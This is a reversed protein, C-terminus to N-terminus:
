YKYTFKQNNGFEVSVDLSAGVIKAVVDSTNRCELETYLMRGTAKEIRAVVYSDHYTPAFTDLKAIAKFKVTENDVIEKTLMNFAQGHRTNPVQAQTPLASLKEDKFKMTIEYYSGKDVCTASKLSSAEVKGGYNQKYVPIGTNASSQANDQNFNAPDTSFMPVIQKILGNIFKSSSTINGIINTIVLDYKPSEKKVKNAAANYYAAIEAPTEPKKDAPATTAATTGNDATTDSLDAATTDTESLGESVDESPLEEAFYIGDEKFEVTKGKEAYYKSIGEKQDETLSKYDGDWDSLGAAALAIRIMEANLPHPANSEENTTQEDTRAASTSTTNDAKKGCAALSFVLAFVLIVSLIATLVRKM